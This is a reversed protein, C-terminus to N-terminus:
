SSSRGGGRKSWPMSLSTSNLSLSPRGAALLDVDLELAAIGVQLCALPVATFDKIELVLAVQVVPDVLGRSRRGDIGM